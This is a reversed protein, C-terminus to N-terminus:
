DTRGSLRQDHELGYADDIDIEATADGLARDSASRVAGGSQEPSEADIVKIRGRWWRSVL